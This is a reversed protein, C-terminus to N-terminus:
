QVTYKRKDVQTLRFYGLAPDDPDDINICNGKLPAPITAFPDGGTDNQEILLRIYNYYTKSIGYFKIDVIDGPQLEREGSDEDNFKEFFIRMENGNTYEDSVDVLTPFLDKREQFIMLYFNEEELPDNFYVNVEIVNPDFGNEKSQDVRDIAVVPMLTEKAIYTTGNNVIKLTYSQNMVPLFDSTTYYGNGRDVFDVIHGNGDNTIEVIAGTVGIPDTSDFYPRLESLRIAQENGVSGLQWDLSAEVVLRPGAYPVEVDIVDQCGLLLLSLVLYINVFINKM